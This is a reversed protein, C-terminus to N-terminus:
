DPTLGQGRLSDRSLDLLPDVLADIRAFLADLDDGIERARARAAMGHEHYNPDLDPGRPVLEPALPATLRQAAISRCQHASLRDLTGPLATPWGQEDFTTFAPLNRYEAPLTVTDHARTTLYRELRVHGDAPPAVALLTAWRRLILVPCTLPNGIADLEVLPLWGIVARDETLVLDRQRLAAIQEWSLGAAALVLLAADRRGFVGAPWGLVPLQPLRDNVRAGLLALRAARGPNLWRRVLEADGPVPRGAARHAANIAACRGRQTAETGGHARLYGVVTAARAPLPALDGALAWRAFQRWERAYEGSLGAPLPIM